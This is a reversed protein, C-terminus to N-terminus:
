QHWLIMRGNHKNHSSIDADFPETIRKNSCIVVSVHKILHLIWHLSSHAHNGTSRFTNVYDQLRIIFFPQSM